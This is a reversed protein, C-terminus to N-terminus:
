PAAARGALVAARPIALLIERRDGGVRDLLGILHGVRDLAAVHGRQLVFEAIEEKLDDEM